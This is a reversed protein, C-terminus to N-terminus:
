IQVGYLPRCGWTQVGDHRRRPVVDSRFRRSIAGKDLVGYRYVMDILRKFVIGGYRYVMLTDDGYRYVMAGM